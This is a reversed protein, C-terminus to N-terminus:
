KKYIVLLRIEKKDGDIAIMKRAIKREVLKDYFQEMTVEEWELIELHTNPNQAQYIRMKESM